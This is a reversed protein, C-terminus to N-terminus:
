FTPFMKPDPRSQQWGAVKETSNVEAKERAAGSSVAARKELLRLM